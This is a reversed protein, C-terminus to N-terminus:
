WFAALRNIASRLQGESARSSNALKRCEVVAKKYANAQDWTWDKAKHVPIRDCGARLQQRLTGLTENSM